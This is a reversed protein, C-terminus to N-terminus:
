AAIAYLEEPLMPKSVQMCNELAYPCASLDGSMTVIRVGPHRERCSIAFALASDGAALTLDVLVVDPLVRAFIEEAERQTCSMYVEARSRLVRAISRAVLADDDLVLIRNMFGLM